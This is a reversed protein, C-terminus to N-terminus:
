VARHAGLRPRSLRDRTMVAAPVTVGLHPRAPPRPSTPTIAQTIASQIRTSLHHALEPHHVLPVPLHHGALALRRCAEVDDMPGNAAAVTVDNIM